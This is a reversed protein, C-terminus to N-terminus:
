QGFRGVMGTGDEQPVPARPAETAARLRAAAIASPTAPPAADAPAPAAVPAPTPPATPAAPTPAALGRLGAVARQAAAEAIQDFDPVDVASSENIAQEPSKGAARARAYTQERRYGYAKDAASMATEGARQGLTAESINIQRGQQQIQQGLRVDARTNAQREIELKQRAIDNEVGQQYERFQQNRQELSLKGAAVQGNLDRWKEEAAQAREALSIQRGQNAVQQAQIQQQQGERRDARAGAITAQAETARNHRAAEAATADRQTATEASAAQRRAEEQDKTWQAAQKTDTDQSIQVAQDHTGSAPRWYTIETGDRYTVTWQYGQEPGGGIGLIGGTKPANPNPNPRAVEKSTAIVDKPNMDAM